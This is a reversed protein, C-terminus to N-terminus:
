EKKEATVMQLNSFRLLKQGNVSYGQKKLRNILTNMFFGHTVLVCDVNKKELECIVKDARKTTDHRSENQRSSNLYWQLRGMVNWIWLPLQVNLDLFSRLPVEGINDMEIYNKRPFLAQATKLSRPFNSVYIKKCDIDIHFGDVSEIDALDYEKCAKDFITSNCKKPWKINVKGHRIITIKM